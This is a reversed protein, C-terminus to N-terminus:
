VVPVRTHIHHSWVTYDHHTYIMISFCVKEQKKEKQKCDKWNQLLADPHNVIKQSAAHFGLLHKCKSQFFLITMKKDATVLLHKCKSSLSVTLCV